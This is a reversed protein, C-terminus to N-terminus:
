QKLPREHRFDEAFRVIQHMREQLVSGRRNAPHALRGGLKGGLHTFARHPQDEVVLPLM